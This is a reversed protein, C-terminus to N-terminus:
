RALITSLYNLILHLVIPYAISKSVVALYSLGLGVGWLYLVVLWQGQKLYNTHMLAFLLSCLVPALLKSDSGFWNANRLLQLLFFRYYVEELIVISIMSICLALPLPQLEVKGSSNVLVIIPQWYVALLAIFLPKAATRSLKFSFLTKPLYGFFKGLSIAVVFSCLLLLVAVILTSVTFGSDRIADLIGSTFWIIISALVAIIWPSLTAGKRGTHSAFWVIVTLMVEIIAMGVVAIV